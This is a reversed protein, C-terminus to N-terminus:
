LRLEVLVKQTSRVPDLGSARFEGFLAIAAIEEGSVIAALLMADIADEIEETM